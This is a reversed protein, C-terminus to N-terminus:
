GSPTAQPLSPSQLLPWQKSPTQQSLAQASPQLAQVWARVPRGSPVQPVALSRSPWTQPLPQLVTAVTGESTALTQLLAPAHTIGAPLGVTTSLQWSLSGQTTAKQSSLSARQTRVPQPVPLQQQRECFSRMHM